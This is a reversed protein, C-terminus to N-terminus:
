FGINGLHTHKFSDPYKLGFGFFRDMGIHGIIILGLLEIIQSDIYLGVIYFLIGLGLFHLINYTISGIKSNVLYGIMGIDPTLLLL